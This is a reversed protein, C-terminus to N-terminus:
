DYFSYRAQYSLCWASSSTDRDSICLIIYSGSAIDGIAGTNSAKYQTELGNLKIYEDFVFRSDKLDGNVASAFTTNAAGNVGIAPLLVQRDRLIVFRDRQDPNISSFTSTSTSGGQEYDLLITAISPVAGNPQRDYVIVVRGMQEKIASNNSYTPQIYGKIRLSVGRTRRAIRNYFSSGEVPMQLLVSASNGGGVTYFNLPTGSVELCKNNDDCTKLETAM